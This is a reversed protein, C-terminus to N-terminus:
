QSQGIYVKFDGDHFCLCFETLTSTSLWRRKSRCSLALFTPNLPLRSGKTFAMSASCICQFFSKLLVCVYSTWFLAPWPMSVNVIRAISLKAHIAFQDTSVARRIFYMIARNWVSLMDAVSAVISSTHVGGVQKCSRIGVIDVIHVAFAATAGFSVFAFVMALGLQRWLLDALNASQCSLADTPSFNTAAMVDTINVGETNGASVDPLM